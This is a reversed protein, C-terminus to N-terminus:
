LWLLALAELHKRWPNFALPFCSCSAWPVTVVTPRRSCLSPYPVLKLLGMSGLVGNAELQSLRALSLLAAVTCTDFYCDLSHWHPPGM